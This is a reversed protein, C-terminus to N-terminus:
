TARVLAFYRLQTKEALYSFCVSDGQDTSRSLAPMSDDSASPFKLGSGDFRSASVRM